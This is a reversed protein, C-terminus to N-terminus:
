ERADDRGRPERSLFVGRRARAGTVRVECGCLSLSCWLTFLFSSISISLIRTVALGDDDHGRKKRQRM